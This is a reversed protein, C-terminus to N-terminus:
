INDEKLCSTGIPQMSRNGTIQKLYIRGTERVQKIESEDLEFCYVISGEAPNHCVPLTQYEPQHEAIKMNCEKFNIAKM